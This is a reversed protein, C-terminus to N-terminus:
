LLNITETIVPNGMKFGDFFLHKIRLIDLSSQPPECLSQALVRLLLDRRDREKLTSKQGKFDDPNFRVWLCPM